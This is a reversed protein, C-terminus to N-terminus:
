AAKRLTWDLAQRLRPVPNELYCDGHALIVREPQLAIMQEVQQGIAAHDTMAARYDRPTGGVPGLNGALRMVLRWFPGIREPAFNEILDTLILSRSARHFFEIEDGFRSPITFSAFHRDWPAPDVGLQRDLTVAIGQAAARERIGAAGWSEADPFAARWPDIGAYHLWSPAILWRVPGLATIAAALDDTLAIPSHLWLGGPLRIVTMRTPFPVKLPGMTMRIAPGDVIWVGEALPKPVGIPDYTFSDHPM